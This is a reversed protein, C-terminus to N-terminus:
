KKFKKKLINAQKCLAIYSPVAFIFGLVSVGTHKKVFTAAKKLSNFMNASEWILTTMFLTSVLVRKVFSM